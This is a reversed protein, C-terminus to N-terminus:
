VEASPRASGKRATGAMALCACFSPTFINWFQATRPTSVVAPLIERNDRFLSGDGALLHHQRAPGPRPAEQMIKTNFKGLERDNIGDHASLGKIRTKLFGARAPLKGKALTKIAAVRNGMPM